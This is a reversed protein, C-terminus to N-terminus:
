KISLRHQEVILFCGDVEIGKKLDDLIPKKMIKETKKIGYKEIFYDMHTAVDEETDYDTLPIKILVEVMRYDSHIKSEDEIGLTDAKKMVSVRHISEITKLDQIQMMEMIFKSFRAAKNDYVQMRDKFSKTADKMQTELMSKTSEWQKIVHACAVVKEPLKEDVIVLNKYDEDTMDGDLQEMKNQLEAALSVLESFKMNVPLRDDKKSM